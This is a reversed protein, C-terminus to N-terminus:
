LFETLALVEFHVDLLQFSEAPRDVVLSLDVLAAVQCQARDVLVSVASDWRVRDPPSLEVRSNMLVQLVVFFVLHYRDV